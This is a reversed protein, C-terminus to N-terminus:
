PEVEEEIEDWTEIWGLFRDRLHCQSGFLRAGGRMAIALLASCHETFSDTLSRLCSTAM